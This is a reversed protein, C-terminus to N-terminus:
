SAAKAFLKLQGPCPDLGLKLRLRAREEALSDKGKKLQENACELDYIEAELEEIQEQNETLTQNVKTFWEQVKALWEQDNSTAAYQRLTAIDRTEIIELYNENPNM